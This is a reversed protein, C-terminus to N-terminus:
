VFVGTTPFPRLRRCPPTGGTVYSSQVVVRKVDAAIASDLLARIDDAHSPQPIPGVNLYM